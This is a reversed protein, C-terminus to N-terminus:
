YNPSGVKNLHQDLSLRQGNLMVTMKAEKNM